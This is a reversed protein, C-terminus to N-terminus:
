AAGSLFHRLFRPSVTQAESYTCTCAHPVCAEKITKSWVPSRRKRENRWAGSRPFGSAPKLGRRDVSQSRIAFAILAWVQRQGHTQRDGGCNRGKAEPYGVHPFEFVVRATKLVGACQLPHPHLKVSPAHRGEVCLAALSKKNRRVIRCNEQSHLQRLLFSSVYRGWQSSNSCGSGTLM